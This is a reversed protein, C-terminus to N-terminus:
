IWGKTENGAWHKTTSKTSRTQSFNCEHWKWMQHFRTQGGYDKWSEGVYRKQSVVLNEAHAMNEAAATKVYQGLEYECAAQALPPPQFHYTIIILVSSSSFIHLSQYIHTASTDRINCLNQSWFIVVDSKVASGIPKDLM